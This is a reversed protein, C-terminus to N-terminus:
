KTHEHPPILFDWPDAQNSPRPAAGSGASVGKLMEVIRQLDDEGAFDITIRGKKRGMNVKVRTDFRDSLSTALQEARPDHEKPRARRQRPKEDGGLAVIEETARVSLGEAVIRQALREQALPDDLALLARAHGASLVAAAVRRQVTVPLKLLRITNSIHPRSRKLRRALEDQTIGFDGMLQEYAAAEELPNLQVRHLNELLADTLMSEDDTARVIAPIQAIGAEQHARLRREGMILEYHTADLKRVVIPQLLGVEKISETLEQLDDEDFVQRPQKPNPTIQPVPLEAYYSGDAMQESAPERPEEAAQIDTRQFLEGLGRGLGGPRASM